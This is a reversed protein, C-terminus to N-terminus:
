LLYLMNERRINEIAFLQPLKDNLIALKVSNILEKAMDVDKIRSQADLLNESTAQLNNSIHELRNQYAGIRGRESSVMLVAEDIANIASSARENTSIDLSYEVSESGKGGNVNGCSVYYIREGNNNVRVEDPNKASVGLSHAEMNNFELEMTQGQNAGVQLIVSPNKKEKSNEIFPANPTEYVEPDIEVVVIDEEYVEAKMGDIGDIYNKMFSAQEVAANYKNLDMAVNETDTTNGDLTAEFKIGAVNLVEKDGLPSDIRYVFTHHKPKQTPTVIPEKIDEGTAQGIKEKIRITDGSSGNDEFRSDSVIADLLNGATKDINEGIKVTNGAGDSSFIYETDAVTIKDGDRFNNTIKFSYEGQTELNADGLVIPEPLDVGTAKGKKEEFIMKGSEDVTAKFRESLVSNDIAIKLNEMSQKISSGIIFDTGATFAQGDITIINGETFNQNISFSYKVRVEEVGGDFTTANPMGKSKASIIDGDDGIISIPITNDVGNNYTLIVTYVKSFCGLKEKELEATIHDLAGTNASSEKSENFADLFQEAINKTLLKNKIEWYNEKPPNEEKKRVFKFEFNNIKISSNLTQSTNFTKFEIGVQSLEHKVSGTEIDYKLALSSTAKESNKDIAFEGIAGPISDEKSCVDMCVISIKGKTIFDRLSKNRINNKMLKKTNFETNCAIRNLESTLQALEEQMKKRDNITYSDNSAQVAIERMRQLIDHSENLAGDVIQVLSVGDMVNRLAARLGWVQAKMKSCISLGAANDKAAKISLGTSLKEIVDSQKTLNVKYNNYNNLLFSNNQIRM